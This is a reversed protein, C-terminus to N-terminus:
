TSGANKRIAPQYGYIHTKSAPPIFVRGSPAIQINPYEIANCLGAM